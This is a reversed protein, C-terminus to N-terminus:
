KKCAANIERESMNSQACLDSELFFYRVSTQLDRSAASLQATKISMPLVLFSFRPAM